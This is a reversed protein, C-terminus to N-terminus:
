KMKIKPNFWIILYKRRFKYLTLSFSHTLNREKSIFEKYLSLHKNTESIYNYKKYINQINITSFAEGEGM